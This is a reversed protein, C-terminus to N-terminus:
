LTRNSLRALDVEAAIAGFAPWPGAARIKMMLEMARDRQGQVLYWNAIGYGLAADLGSGREGEALLTEPDLESKYMLLLRHYSHNELIDMEGHIPELIAQAEEHKGQRRLTMYLWHSTACLMDPNASYELCRRYAREANGLDGQLYYALGLHYWVNSHLTSTPINRSNPLGDPEVQDPLGDILAAAAELDSVASAFRRVSLFRHGRHRLVRADDPHRELARDYIEIADRYRGLYATRRGVWIAADVDEPTAEFEARAAALKAEFDARTTEDLAVPLLPAGDVSWGQEDRIRFLEYREARVAAGPVGPNAGAPAIWVKTEIPEARRVLPRGLRRTLNACFKLQVGGHCVVSDDSDIFASLKRADEVFVANRRAERRELIGAYTVGYMLGLLLLLSGRRRASPRTEAAIFAGLALLGFSMPVLVRATTGAVRPGVAVCLGIWAIVALGLVLRRWTAAPASLRRLRQAFLISVFPMVPLLYRGKQEPVFLYVLFAWAVVAACLGLLPDRRWADFTSRWADRRMPVLVLSWPLLWGLLQFPYTVLHRLWGAAGYHVTRVAVEMSWGGVLASSDQLRSHPVLWLAVLGAMVAVGAGFPISSFRLERRRRLALFLVPPYFFLPALIKTLIGGALFLHPVFWQLWPSERRRGLEFCGLAGVVFFTFLSDIEGTRGSQIVAGLTLFIAAPLPDSRGRRGDTGLRFLFLAIGALALLSITRIRAASVKTVDLQSALALIWNQLPPKKFYPEGLVRPGIFDGSHIMEMAVLCRRPEEWKLPYSLIGALYVYALTAVIALPLLRSRM